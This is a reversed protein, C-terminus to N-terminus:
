AIEARACQRLLSRLVAFLRLDSPDAQDVRGELGHRVPYFQHRRAEEGRSRDAGPLFDLRRLERIVDLDEPRQHHLRRGRERRPDAALRPGIRCEARFLGPVLPDPGRRDKASAGAEASRQWVEAAGAWADLHWFEVA